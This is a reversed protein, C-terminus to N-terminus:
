NNGEQQIEWDMPMEIGGCLTSFLQWGVHSGGKFKIDFKIKVM